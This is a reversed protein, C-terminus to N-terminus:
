KNKSPNPVEVAYLLLTRTWQSSTRAEASLQSIHIFIIRGATGASHMGIATELKDGTAVWIKIGARKLDAITEPVGDQLRDEIATAGLLRLDRELEESVKEIMEERDDM